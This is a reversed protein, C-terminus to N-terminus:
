KRARELDVDSICLYVPAPAPRCRRGPWHGVVDCVVFGHLEIRHPRDTPCEAGHAPWLAFLMLILGIVVAWALLGGGMVWRM